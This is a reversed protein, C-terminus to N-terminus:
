KNNKIKEFDEKLEPYTGLIPVLGNNDKMVEEILGEYVDCADEYFIIESEIINYGLKTYSKYRAEVNKSIGIKYFM